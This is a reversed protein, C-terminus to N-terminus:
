DCDVAGDATRIDVQKEIVDDRRCDTNAIKAHFRHASLLSVVLRVFSVRLDCLANRKRTEQHGKHRKTDKTTERVERRAGLAYADTTLSHRKRTAPPGRWAATSGPSSM